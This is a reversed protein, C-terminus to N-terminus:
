VPAAGVLLTACSVEAVLTEVVDGLRGHAALEAPIGTVLLDAQVESMRESVLVVARGNVVSGSCEVGAGAAIDMSRQLMASGAAPPPDSAVVVLLELPLGLAGAIGVAARVVHEFPRSADIAVLVRRMPLLAARPVMLTPCPANAAVQRVMEGVRLRGLFGRHGRRRTVLLDAKGARAQDVIERWPEAGRRVHVQLPVASAQARSTFDAAARAAKAEAEAALEPAVAEFEPNSVLPIVIDLSTGLKHALELGVREAGADFETWQTVLLVRRPAVM